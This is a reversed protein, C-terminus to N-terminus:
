GTSGFGGAGRDTAALREPSVEVLSPLAVPAIVMQAIRQGRQITYPTRGTSIAVRVEGRYDSDITGPSNPIGVGPHRSISSRPRVQGEFGDPIEWVVGTPILVVTHAPITLGTDAVVVKGTAGHTSRAKLTEGVTIAACLDYGVSGATARAPFPVGLAHPLRAIRILPRLWHYIHSTIDDPTM